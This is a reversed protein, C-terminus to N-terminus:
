LVFQWLLFVLTGMRLILILACIVLLIKAPVTWASVPEPKKKWRSETDSPLLRVVLSFFPIWTAIGKFNADHARRVTVAILPLVTLAFVITALTFLIASLEYMLADQAKRLLATLIVLVATQFLYFWWYEARSAAGKFSFYQSFARKLAYLPTKPIAPLSGAISEGDSADAQSGELASKESKIRTIAAPTLLLGAIFCIGDAISLVNSIFILFDQTFYTPSFSKISIFLASFIDNAPFYNLFLTYSIPIGGIQPGFFRLITIALNAIAVYLCVAAVATLALTVRKATRDAFPQVRSKRILLLSLAGFASRIAAFLLAHVALRAVNGYKLLCFEIAISCAASAFFLGPAYPRHQRSTKVAPKSEYGEDKM